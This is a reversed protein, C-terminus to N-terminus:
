VLTITLFLISFSSVELHIRNIQKCLPNYKNPHLFHYQVKFFEMGGNWYEVMGTTWEM